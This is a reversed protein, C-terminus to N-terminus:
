GHSIGPNFPFLLSHKESLADAVARNRAFGLMFGGGGAGCVKLQVDGSDLSQKWLPHLSAPIMPHFHEFQFQSVTHLHIWFGSTDADLWAQVMAEHAPLLTESLKAAFDPTRSQELFWRVLPGTQRPTQTDILFVVPADPATKLDAVSVETKHRILLPTDLYSTLPDIGSSSGHFHSEMRGFIDKLLTLDSTKEAMYRDYIGACLAGSSGLGYGTPINSQFYLGAEVEAKLRRTDLGDISRLSESEALQLLKDRRNAFLNEPAGMAWKGYFSPVPVALASAGLLLVHEGFLLLKAPYNRM